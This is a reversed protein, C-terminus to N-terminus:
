PERLKEKVSKVVKGAGTDIKKKIAQAETEAAKRIKEAEKEASSKADAIIKESNKASKLKSSERRGDFKEKAGDIIKVANKKADAVISEAEIEMEKIKEIENVMKM